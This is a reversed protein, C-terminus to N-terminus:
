TNWTSNKKAKTTVNRLWLLFTSINRKSEYPTQKNTQDPTTPASEDDQMKSFFVIFDCLLLLYLDYNSKYYDFERTDERPKKPVRSKKLPSVM